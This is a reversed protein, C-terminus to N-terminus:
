TSAMGGRTQRGCTGHQLAGLLRRNVSAVQEQPPEVITDPRASM